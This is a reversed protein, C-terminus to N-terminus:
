KVSSLHCSPHSSRPWPQVSCRNPVGATHQCRGRVLWGCEVQAFAGLMPILMHCRRARTYTVTGEYVMHGWIALLRPSSIWTRPGIVPGKGDQCVGGVGGGLQLSVGPGSCRPRADCQAKGVTRHHGM